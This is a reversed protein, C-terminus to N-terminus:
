KGLILAAAICAALVAAAILTACLSRARTINPEAAREALLGARRLGRSVPKYVLMTIAANLAGKILNFPLFVPLLMAAVAARPTGTYLPTIFYNWLLMSAVECAVGLTLGLAAGRLTRKRAYLIAPPLLFAASSLLNMVFGIPGSTSVTILELFAVVAATTLAPIPGLTFGCIALIVDKPDYTLFPAAAVIRIHIVCMVLYALAAFMAGLTLKRTTNSARM